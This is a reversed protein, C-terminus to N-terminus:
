QTNRMLALEVQDQIDEIPLTGGSPLRRKFTQTIQESIADILQHIRDSATANSGEEAIFAKTIAIKIKVADYAVIKGNRKIVRQYVSHQAPTKAELM